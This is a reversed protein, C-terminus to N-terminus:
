YMNVTFTSRCVAKPILNDCWNDRPGLEFNDRPGLEFNNEFVLFFIFETYLISSKLYTNVTSFVTLNLLEGHTLFKRIITM